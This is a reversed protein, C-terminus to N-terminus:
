DSGARLGASITQALSAGVKPDLKGAPWRYGLGDGVARPIIHFHIHAVAQGAVRGNNQLLNWAQTGTAALVARGLRPALAAAAAVLADPTQDLLEYHAKPVILCHGHSLPAIDLFALVQDDEYLKHCPIQGAVIKCFICNPDARGPHSPADTM